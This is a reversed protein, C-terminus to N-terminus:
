HKFKVFYEKGNYNTKLWMETNTLRRIEWTVDDARYPGFTASLTDPHYLSFYLSKKHNVFQCSGHRSYTYQPPHPKSSFYSLHIGEDASDEIKYEGYFPKSLLASTSDYSDVSFFDVNWTQCLRKMKSELNILPGDPYKKCSTILVIAM